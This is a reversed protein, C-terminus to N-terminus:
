FIALKFIVEKSQGEKVVKSLTEGSKKQFMSEQKHGEYCIGHNTYLDNKVQKYLM